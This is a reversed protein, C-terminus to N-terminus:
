LPPPVSCSNRQWIEVAYGKNSGYFVKALHYDAHVYAIFPGLNGNAARTAQGLRDLGITRTQHIQVGRIAADVQDKTTYDTNILYDVTTPNELSLAFNYSPVGIYSEGARTHQAFWQYEEFEMPDVFATRGTPLDLYGRWHRQLQFPLAVLFFLGVAWLAQRAIRSGVTIGGVLWACVISAPPAIMCMRNFSAAQAVAAFLALGVFSILLM